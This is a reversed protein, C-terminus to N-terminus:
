ELGEKYETDYHRICNNCIMICDCDFETDHEVYYIEEGCDICLVYDDILIVGLEEARDKIKIKM